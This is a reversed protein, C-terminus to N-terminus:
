LNVKRPADAMDAAMDVIRWANSQCVGFQAQILACAEGRKKGSRLLRVAAALRRAREGTRPNLVFVAELIIEANV